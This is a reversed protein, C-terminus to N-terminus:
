PELRATNPFSVARATVIGQEDILHTWRLSSEWHRMCIMWCSTTARYENQMSTYQRPAPLRITRYREDEALGKAILFQGFDEIADLEGVPEQSSSDAFSHAVGQQTASNQM